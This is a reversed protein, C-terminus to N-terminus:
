VLAAPLAIRAALRDLKELVSAAAGAQNAKVAEELRKATETLVPFGATGGSGKLWHALTALSEFDGADRAEHMQGLRGHFTAIFEEVIERFDEDDTPLNSVLEPEPSPAAPSVEAQESTRVTTTTDDQKLLQAIAQLLRDAKIPKCLYATCGARRCKQEDGAMAHATLAIIPLKGGSERLKRTASYGDMVPMQMDMLILDFSDAMAKRVGIQGNEATVVDAGAKRLVLSILKRNTSGDDVLLIRAPPLVIATEDPSPRSAALGDAPPRDLLPVGELSGADITATFTSGQGPVSRATLEGGLAMAIRRSIALGLGTGGFERTISSDAQSFADFIVEMKEPAIGVGTDIVDFCIQPTEPTGAMRIVVRVSGSETFKIANGVLNMLLQRLRSPDSQITAPVKDPWECRIDLKREQARVRLLSIVAAVIEHPSCRVCEVELRGAEIKSLDLIDNILELLHEGSSHITDIYDRREAEDGNDAGRRLLETFGLIANLPTRIEHSMNALFQSKARNAAETALCEEQMALKHREEEVRMWQEEIAQATAETHATKLTKEENQLHRLKTRLMSIQSEKRLLSWGVATCIRLDAAMTELRERGDASWPLLGVLVVDIADSSRMGFALCRKSDLSYDVVSLDSARLGDAVQQVLDNVSALDIEPALRMAVRVKGQETLVLALPRHSRLLSAVGDLCDAQEFVTEDTDFFGELSNRFDDM